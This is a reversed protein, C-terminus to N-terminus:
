SYLYNQFIVRHSIRLVLEGILIHAHFSKTIETDKQFSIGQLKWKM